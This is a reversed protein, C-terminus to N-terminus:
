EARTASASSTDTPAKRRRSRPTGSSIRSGGFTPAVRSCGPRTATACMAYPKRYPLKAALLLPKWGLEFFTGYRTIRGVTNPFALARQEPSWRHVSGELDMAELRAQLAALTAAPLKVWRDEGDKCPELRGGDESWTREVHVRERTWDIDARRLATAEGWRLGGGFCVMLFATWRPRLASCAELLTRAEAPRFWQVDRKRARKSPQKGVFFKLDAAPNPGRYGHVNAQWQFFKALPCRVQEVSAASKGAKRIALLVAGLAVQEDM